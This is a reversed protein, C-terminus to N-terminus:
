NIILENDNENDKIKKKENNEKYTNLDKEFNKLLIVSNILFEALNKDHFHQCLFYYAINIIIKIIGDINIKEINLDYLSFYDDHISYLTQRMLSGSNM